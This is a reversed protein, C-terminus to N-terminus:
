ILTKKLSLDELPRLSQELQDIADRIKDIENDLMTLSTRQFSQELSNVRMVIIQWRQPLFKRHYENWWTQDRHTLPQTSSQQTELEELRRVVAYRLKVNYGSVLTLTLDKNLLIEAVQNNDERRLIQYQECSLTSNNILDLDQLMKNTDRLVNTHRKKTLAAVEKTSMMRVTTTSIENAVFTQKQYSIQTHNNM